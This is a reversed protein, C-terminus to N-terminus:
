SQWVLSPHSSIQTVSAIIEMRILLSIERLLSRERNIQEVAERIKQEEIGNGILEELKEKFLKVGDYYYEFGIDSKEHPVGFLYSPVGTFFTWTDAMARQNSDVLANVLLDVMNYLMNEALMKYGVQAKYFTDVWRPIYAGSYLVPEHEGGRILPIPMAKPNCAAIFEEPLYGNPVYGIMKSGSDRAKQSEIIRENLHATLQDVAKM